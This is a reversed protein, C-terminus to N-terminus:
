EWLQPHAYTFPWVDRSGVLKAKVPNNLIYRAIRDFENQDRVLHDYTERQWFQGTRGLLKNAELGTFGKHSQLVKSMPWADPHHKVLVHVHNPMVVFDMLEYDTEDLHRLNDAVIKSLVPRKLMCSGHCDDLADDWRESVAWQVQHRVASKLRNLEARWNGAAVAAERAKREAEDYKANNVGVEDVKQIFRDLAVVAEGIVEVTAEFAPTFQKGLTVALNESSAKLKDWAGVGENVRKTATGTLDNTDTLLKNYTFQAKTLPSMTEYNKRQEATMEAFAKVADNNLVLGLYEAAEAEGRLADSVRATAAALSIGKVAALDASIKLVREQQVSTFAYQRGLNAVASAAELAESTSRGTASALKEANAIVLPASAGYLANLAFVAQQQRQTASTIKEIAAAAGAAGLTVGTLGAALGLAGKSAAGFGSGAQRSAATTREAARAAADGAKKYEGEIQMSSRAIAQAQKASSQATAREADALGKLLAANNASLTFEASGVSTAM